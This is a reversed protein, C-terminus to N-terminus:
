AQNKEGFISLTLSLGSHMVMPGHDEPKEREQWLPRITKRTACLYSFTHVFALFLRSVVSRLFLLWV